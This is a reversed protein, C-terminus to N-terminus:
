KSSEREILKDCYNRADNINNFLVMDKVVYLCGLIKGSEMGMDSAKKIVISIEDNVSELYAFGIIYTCAIIAGLIAALKNM